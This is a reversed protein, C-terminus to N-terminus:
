RPERIARAILVIQIAALVGGIALAGPLGLVRAAAYTAVNLMYGRRYPRLRVSGGHALDVAALCTMATLAVTLVLGVAPGTLRALLDPSRTTPSGVSEEFM